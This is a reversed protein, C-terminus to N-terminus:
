VHVLRHPQIFDMWPNQTLQCLHWMELHCLFWDPTESGLCGYSVVLLGCYVAAHPFWTLCLLNGSQPLFKGDTDSSSGETECTWSCGLSCAMVLLVQSWSGFVEGWISKTALTWELFVAGMKSVIDVHNRATLVPPTMDGYKKETIVATQPSGLVYSFLQCSGTIHLLVASFRELYLASFLCQPTKINCLWYCLCISRTMLISLFLYWKELIHLCSTGVCSHQTGNQYKCSWSSLCFLALM